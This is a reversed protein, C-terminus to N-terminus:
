AVGAEAAKKAKWAKACAALSGLEKYAEKVFAAYKGPGAGRRAM